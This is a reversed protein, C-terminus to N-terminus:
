HSLHKEQGSALHIQNGQAYAHANLQAPKASNYHVRVDNMSYGSLQEIGSKLSDPMGTRNEQRQVINAIELEKQHTPNHNEIEFQQVIGQGSKVTSDAKKSAKQPKNDYSSAM